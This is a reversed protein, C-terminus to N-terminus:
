KWGNHRLLADINPNRGRFAKFSQIASRSGGVALIEELFRQGIKASVINSDNIIAEEEFVSYADASLVEAWQYSYYGAAYGGAFIHSFSNQFRNFKPTQIIAIKQRIRELINQVNNEQVANYDYHIYMDFLSLEIQHLMKLGAQFNKADTIKQFLSRPIPLGTKIHASINQLVNWEWCFNEMFQSPLEVADWEVGSIGSINAEDIQTLLHHLCHGIEHFLTIVDEHTLLTSKQINDILIPPTFNCVLYAIPTQIGHATIRRTRASDMWAGSRKGNRAYLDLYFQGILQGNASEVRFFDVDKNWVPAEDPLIIVNFLDTIIQFLGSLVKSIPFYQKVEEESFNYNQERLKETVYTIDWAEITNLHLKKKAFQYLEIWDKKAHIHAHQALDELFHIVKQPSQAMKLTLSLEAFNAFGLLMAEKHRLELIKKINNTNNWKKKISFESAKTVNARYIKKRLMRDHAYKLIPFFSPFHLTFKFGQKKDKKAALYATQKADDPLGALKAENTIYLVYTNTADLVNESFRTTLIAIKKQINAFFIKKNNQLEAGSLRFDRIINDIVKKRVRSLTKYQPGSRLIKYKNFLILNHNLATRFKILKAQNEKYVSRLESTNNVSNLHEIISWIHNLQETANELPEVYNAWTVEQPLQIELISILKSTEALLIDVAPTIHAPKIKDFDILHAFNLLPNISSTTTINNNIM